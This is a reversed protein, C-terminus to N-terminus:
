LKQGSPNPWDLASTYLVSFCVTFCLSLRRSLDVSPCVSNLCNAYKLLLSSFVAIPFTFLKSSLQLKITVSM